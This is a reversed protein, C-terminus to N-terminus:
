LDISVKVILLKIENTNPLKLSELLALLEERMGKPKFDLHNYKTLWLGM